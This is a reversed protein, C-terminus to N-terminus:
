SPHTTKDGGVRFVMLKGSAHTPQGSSDDRVLSLVADLTSAVTRSSAVLGGGGWSYGCNISSRYENFYQCKTQGADSPM